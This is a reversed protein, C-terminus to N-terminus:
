QLGNFMSYIPRASALSRIFQILMTQICTKAMFWLYLQHNNFRGKDILPWKRYMCPVTCVIKMIITARVWKRIWTKSLSWKRHLEHEIGDHKRLDFDLGINEIDIGFLLLSPFFVSKRKSANAISIFQTSDTSIKYLNHVYQIKHATQLQIQYISLM